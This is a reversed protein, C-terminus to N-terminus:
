LLEELLRVTLTGTSAIGWLEGMAHLTITANAALPFGGATTVTNDTGIYLTGGGPNHINIATREYNVDAIKAATTGISATRIALSSGGTNIQQEAFSGDALEVASVKYGIRHKKVM